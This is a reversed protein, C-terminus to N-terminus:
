PEEISLSFWKRITGNTTTFNLTYGDPDFSGNFKPGTAEFMDSGSNDHVSIAIDDVLSHCNSTAVGDEDSLGLCGERSQDFGSLAFVGAGTPGTTVMVNTATCATPVVMVWQPIHGTVVVKNGVVIPTDYHNLAVGLGGFSVALYAFDYPAGGDRKTMDFGTPNFATIEGASLKEALTAASSTLIESM